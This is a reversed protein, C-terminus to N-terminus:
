YGLTSANKKLTVSFNLFFRPFSVLKINLKMNNLKLKFTSLNELLQKEIKSHNLLITKILQDIVLHFRFGEYFACFAAALPVLDTSEIMLVDPTCERTLGTQLVPACLSFVVTKNGLTRSIHKYVM